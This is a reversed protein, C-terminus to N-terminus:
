PEPISSPIAHTTMGSGCQMVVPRAPRIITATQLPPLVRRNLRCLPSRCDYVADGKTGPIGFSLEWERVREQVSTEADAAPPPAPSLVAGEDEEEEVDSAEESGFHAESGDDDGDSGAPGAGNWSGAADHKGAGNSGSHEGLWASDGAVGDATAGGEGNGSESCVYNRDRAAEAAGSPPQLATQGATEGGRQRRKSTTHTGRLGEVGETLPETQATSGHKSSSSSATATVFRPPPHAQTHQTRPVASVHGRRSLSNTQLDTSASARGRGSTSALANTESRAVATATCQHVDVRSPAHGFAYRSGRQWM